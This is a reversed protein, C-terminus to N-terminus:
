FALVLTITIRRNGAQNSGFGWDGASFTSVGFLSSSMNGVPSAPNTRNLLNQVQVSLITAMRKIRIRRSAQLNFMAFGPGEGFNRPIVGASASPNINFTGYPTVVINATAPGSAFAPRDNFISDGNQDVGTTIDFPVGSRWLVLPALDIGGPTRIWGGFYVTHRADILSRGYDLRFNQPNVPFYDAGETDTRISSLTYTTWLTVKSGARLALNFLASRQNSLGNSQYQFIDGADPTPRVGALPANVNVSRLARRVQVNTLTVAASLGLPFQREIALSSHIAYPTQIGRALEVTTPKVAFNNLQSLSPVLPFLNLVAPDSVFFQRQNQGNQQHARLVLQDGVRDYFIGMGGRIVTKPPATGRGLGWAFGLRPAFNNWDNKWLGGTPSENSPLAQGGRRDTGRIFPMSRNCRASAKRRASAGRRISDLAGTM